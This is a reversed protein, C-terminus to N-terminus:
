ASATLLAAARRLTALARQQYGHLRRLEGLMGPAAVLAGILRWLAVSGDERLAALAPAPLAVHAPDVIARMALFPRDYEAAVAAVAASEMDVACFSSKRWLAHKEAVTAVVTDSTFLMDTVPRLAALLTTAQAHWVPDATYRNHGAAEVLRPLVLTGPPLAPDLAGATGFALLAANGRRVEDRAATAARAPGLGCHVVRAGTGSSRWAAAEDPLAAIVAITFSPM